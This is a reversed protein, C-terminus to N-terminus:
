IVSPSLSLICRWFCASYCSPNNGLGPNGLSPNGSGPNGLAPNPLSPNGSGPNLSGCGRVCSDACDLWQSEPIAQLIQFTIQNALESPIPPVRDRIERPISVLWAAPLPNSEFSFRSVFQPNNFRM